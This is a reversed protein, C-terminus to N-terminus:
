WTQQSIVCGSKNTHPQRDQIQSSTVRKQSFSHWGDLSNAYGAKGFVCHIPGGNSPHSPYACNAGSPATISWGRIHQTKKPSNSDDIDSDVYDLMNGSRSNRCYLYATIASMSSIYLRILIGSNSLSARLNEHISSPRMCVYLDM